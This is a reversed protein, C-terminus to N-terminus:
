CGEELRKERERPTEPEEEPNEETNEYTSMVWARLAAAKEDALLELVAKMEDDMVPMEKKEKVPVYEPDKTYCNREPDDSPFVNYDLICVPISNGYAALYTCGYCNRPIFGLPKGSDECAICNENNPSGNSFCVCEACILPHM